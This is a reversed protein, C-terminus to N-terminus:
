MKWGEGVHEHMESRARVIVVCVCVCVCVSFIHEQCLGASSADEILIVNKVNGAVNVVFTWLQLYFLLRAAVAVVATCSIGSNNAWSFCNCSRGQGSRFRPRGRVAFRPPSTWRRPEVACAPGPPFYVSTCKRLSHKSCFVPTGESAFAKSRM